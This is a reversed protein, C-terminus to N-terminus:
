QNRCMQRDRQGDAHFLKAGVPRIKMLNPIHINKSFRELFVWTENFDSVFLPYKVHLVIDNRDFTRSFILVFMKYEIATLFFIKASILYHPCIHVLWSLGSLLVIRRMHVEHQISLGLFVFGSYTIKTYKGSCCHKSSRAEKNRKRVNGTLNFHEKM